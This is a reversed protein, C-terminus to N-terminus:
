AADGDFPNGDDVPPPPALYTRLDAAWEGRVKGALYKATRENWTEPPGPSKGTKAECFELFGVMDCGMERLVARVSARYDDASPPLADDQQVARPQPALKLVEIRHPAKKGRTKALMIDVPKDIGTVARVRIGGVKEGGFMVNPDRYLEVTQGIWKRAHVGWCAALCRRATKGPKWPQHGGSITIIVPQDEDGASVDEIRVVIPGAILDDANLQDSKAALTGSIDDDDNDSM